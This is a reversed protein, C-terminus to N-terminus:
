SIRTSDDSKEYYDLWLQKHHELSLEALKKSNFKIKHISLTHKNILYEAYYFNGEFDPIVTYFRDEEPEVLSNWEKAFQSLQALALCSKAM